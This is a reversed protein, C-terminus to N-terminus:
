DILRQLSHVITRVEFTSRRDRVVKGLLNWNFTNNKNCNSSCRVQVSIKQVIIPNIKETTIIM